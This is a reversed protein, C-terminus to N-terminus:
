RKHPTARMWRSRASLGEARRPGSRWPRHTRCGRTRHRARLPSLLRTRDRTEHSGLPKQGGMEAQSEPADAGAPLERWTPAGPHRAQWAAVDEGQAKRIIHRVERGSLERRELLAAALAEVAPSYANRRVLGRVRELQLEVFHKVM